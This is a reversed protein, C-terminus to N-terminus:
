APWTPSIMTTDNDYKWAQFQDVGVFDVEPYKAAAAATAEGMDFGVTVIADTARM